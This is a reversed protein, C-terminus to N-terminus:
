ILLSHTDLWLAPRGRSSSALAAGSAISARPAAVPIAIPVWAASAAPADPAITLLAPVRSFVRACGEECLIKSPRAQGCHGSMAECPSAHAAMPCPATAQLACDGRAVCRSAAWASSLAGQAILAIALFILIRNQRGAM